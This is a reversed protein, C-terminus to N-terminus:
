QQGDENFNQQGSGFTYMDPPQTGPTTSSIIPPRVPPHLQPPVHHVQQQVPPRAFMLFQGLMAMFQDDRRADREAREEERKLRENELAMFEKRQDELKVLITDVLDTSKKEARDLKSLKKRKKKSPVDEGEQRMAKEKGKSTKGGTTKNQTEDLLPTGSGPTIAPSVSSSTEGVDLEECVFSDSAKKMGELSLMVIEEDEELDSGFKEPIEIVEANDSVPLASPLDESRVSVTDLVHPPNAVARNKLVSHMIDFWPFDKACVEDDSEVGEGSKRHKDVIDKYRKKLAKVKDQVQKLTREYGAKKLAEIIRQYTKANRKSTLLEQQITKESWTSLLIDVEDDTWTRGREAM